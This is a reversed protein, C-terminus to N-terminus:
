EIAGSAMKKPIVDQVYKLPQAVAVHRARQQTQM